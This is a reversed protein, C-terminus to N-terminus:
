KKGMAKNLNAQAKKAEQLRRAVRKAVEKVIEKQSPQYNIGELALELLDEEEEAPEEAGMDMEPEDAPMDMAPMDDAPAAEGGLADVLAQIDGLAAIAKEVMEEEVEVQEGDADDMEMEPAEEPADMEPMEPAEEEQMPQEEENYMGENYDGEEMKEDRKYTGMEQLPQISALNQFRRVQAESLLKKSM